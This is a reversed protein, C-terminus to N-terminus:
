NSAALCTVSYKALISFLEDEQILVNMLTTTQAGLSLFYLSMKDM